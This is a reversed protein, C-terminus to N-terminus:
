VLRQHRAPRSQLVERKTRWFAMGEDLITRIEM